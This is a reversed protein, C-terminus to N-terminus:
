DGRITWYIPLGFWTVFATGGCVSAILTSWWSQILLNVSLFVAATMGIALVATGALALYAAIEVHRATRRRLGSAPYRVRAQASPAILLISALATAVVAVLFAGRNTSGLDAFGAQLPVTLLFGLLVQSGPLTTRLGELLARFREDVDDAGAGDSWSTSRPTPEDDSEM